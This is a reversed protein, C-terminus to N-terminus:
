CDHFWNVVKAPAVRVKMFLSVQNIQFSDSYIFWWDNFSHGLESESCKHFIVCWFILKRRSLLLVASLNRAGSLRHCWCHLVIEQRAVPFNGYYWCWGLWSPAWAQHSHFEMIGADFIKCYNYFLISKSWLLARANM